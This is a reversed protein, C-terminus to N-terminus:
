RETDRLYENKYASLFDDMINKLDDNKLGEVDVVDSFIACGGPEKGDWVFIEFWNNADVYVREDTMWQNPNETILDKLEQPFDSPYRFRESSSDMNDIGLPNWDVVVEGNTEITICIDDDKDYGYAIMEYSDLMMSDLVKTMDKYFIYDM